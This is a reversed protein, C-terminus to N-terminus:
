LRTSISLTFHKIKEKVPLLVLLHAYEGLVFERPLSTEMYRNDKYKLTLLLWWM